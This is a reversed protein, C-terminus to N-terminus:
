KETPIVWPQIEPDHVSHINIYNKKGRLSQVRLGGAAAFSVILHDSREGLSGVALLKTVMKAMSIPTGRRRIIKIQMENIFLLALCINMHPNEM